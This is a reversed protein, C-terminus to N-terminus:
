NQKIKEICVLRATHTVETTRPVSSYFIWQPRFGDDFRRGYCVPAAKLWEDLLANAQEAISEAFLRASTCASCDRGAVDDEKNLSLGYFDKGTFKM